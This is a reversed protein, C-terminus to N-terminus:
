ISYAAVSFENDAVRYCFSCDVLCGKPAAQVTCTTLAVVRSKCRQM